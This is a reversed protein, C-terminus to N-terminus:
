LDKKEKRKRKSTEKNHKKDKGRSNVMKKSKKM